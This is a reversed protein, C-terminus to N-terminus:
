WIRSPRISERRGSFYMKNSNTKVYFSVVEKLKLIMPCMATSRDHKFESQLETSSLYTRVIYQDANILDFIREFIINVLTPESLM